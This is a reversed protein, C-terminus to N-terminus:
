AKALYVLFNKMATDQDITVTKFSLDLDSLKELIVRIKNRGLKKSISQSKKVVFPSLGSTSAIEAPQLNDEASNVLAVAHVQWVIMAM